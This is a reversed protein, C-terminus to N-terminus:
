AFREIGESTGYVGLSAVIWWCDMGQVELEPEPFSPSTKEIHLMINNKCSVSVGRYQFQV